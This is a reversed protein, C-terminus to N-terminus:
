RLDDWIAPDLEGDAKFFIVGRLGYKKALNIKDLASQADSFSVFMTNTANAPLPTTTVALAQPKTSSIYSTLTAPIASIYTSTQYSYSLEDANDRAPAIGVLDARDMAEEFTFSRVRQYTTVGDSWSVQYEYGYTPIGLMVKKPNITGLMNRLVRVVWDPDAVPAYLTSSGKDADLTLDITGQDYAMVRIEDCYKNLVTYDDSYPLPDPPTTWIDAAPSRPEISCTLVKKEAHLRNALGEIFLSFYPKIKSPKNEYDIDIGDFNQAKALAAIADEHAQRTAANSLLNYMPTGDFWAVTPIIKVGLERAASFWGNWSGNDINADDIIKGGTGIEYSFPSVEDLKNLNLSVDQAGDQAKWFPLWVAYKLPQSEQAEAAATVAALSVKEPMMFLFAGFVAPLLLVLTAFKRMIENHHQHHAFHL